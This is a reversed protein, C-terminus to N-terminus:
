KRNGNKSMEGEFEGDTTFRARREGCTDYAGDDAGRGRHETILSKNATESGFNKYKEQEAAARLVYSSSGTENKMKLRVYATRFM